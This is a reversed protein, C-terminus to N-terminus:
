RQRGELAMRVPLRLTTADPTAVYFRDLAQRLCPQDPAAEAFPTTRPRFTMASGLRQHHEAALM